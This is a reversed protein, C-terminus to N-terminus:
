KLIKRVLKLHNKHPAYRYKMDTKPSQILVSKLHTFTDFGYKGHYQGMGSQGIGGFPLETPTLHLIVDNLCGGGFRLTSLIKKQVAKDQSFLYLALPSPRTYIFDIVDELDTYTIIPFIPGFIEERMCPHTLAQESHIDGLDLVTPAIKNSATDVQASPALSYLRCFHKTNIIKPYEPNEIPNDGYQLAIEDSIQTLLDKKQSEHVLIYDPAVCTQGANLLKGWVIRRAAIPLNASEDVICPSKGGLELCVPTLNKAANEMVVKGVSPSGTFFIFDFTENLLLQNALFGGKVLAVFSPDFSEQIITELIESTAPSYESTKVIATNGAAIATVLPQLSLLVPYNWPSMILTTGFPEPFIKAKAPYSLFTTKAKKPKSWKKLNKRQVSIEHLVLGLETTFSEFDPKGLDTRLAEFIESEHHKIVSYLSKLARKRHKISKTEGSRFYKRQNEVLTHIRNKEQEPMVDDQRVSEKETKKKAM